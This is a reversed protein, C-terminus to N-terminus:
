LGLAKRTPTFVNCLVICYLTYILM